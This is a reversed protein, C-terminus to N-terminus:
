RVPCQACTSEYLAQVTPIVLPAPNLREVAAALGLNATM